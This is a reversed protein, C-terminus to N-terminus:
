QSHPTGNRGPRPTAGRQSRASRRAPTTGAPSRGTRAFSGPGPRGSPGSPQTALITIPDKTGTSVGPAPRERETHLARQRAIEADAEPPLGIINEGPEQGAPYGYIENRRAGRSIAVYLGERCRQDNILGIGVAVTRGEVAYWTLAYGLDCNEAAYTRGLPFPASWRRQGTEDHGDLRRVTLHPRSIAEVRLVDGNALTRGEQGANLQNDNRRAVILDGVYARAGNRLATTRGPTLQGWDLLCGQISRPVPLCDAHDM